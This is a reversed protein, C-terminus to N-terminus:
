EHHEEFYKSLEKIALNSERAAGIRVADILALLTYLLKDHRVAFPVSKYLPALAQGKSKGLADPWVYINDGATMLKKQLPPAAFSTAIGRSLKDIDAPFTYRLGHIIFNFLAKKNVIPIKSEDDLKALAIKYCRQMGLSIESKSIGTTAALARMSYNPQQPKFQSESPTIESIEDKWDQWGINSKDKSKETTYHARSSLELCFLKLMLLLDQSKMIEGFQGTDM